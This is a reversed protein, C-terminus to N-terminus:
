SADADWAADTIGRERVKGKDIRESPTKPLSEVLEVYRPVAFRPLDDAVFELLRSPDLPTNPKTVILVAVDEEGVESPVGIAAAELVDPHTVVAEEVEWASINEGRRRIADKKRGVYELYGDSHERLLDGSHFWLNRWVEVTAEPKRWYGQMMEYPGDPRYVLEGVAGPEVPVDNEDVLRVALGPIPQGVRGPLTGGPPSGTILVSETMGYGESITIDFRTEFDRLIDAPTSSCM